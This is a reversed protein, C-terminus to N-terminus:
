SPGNLALVLNEVAVVGDIVYKYWFYFRNKDNDTKLYVNSYQYNNTFSYLNNFAYSRFEVKEIISLAM